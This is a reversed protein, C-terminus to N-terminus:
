DLVANEVIAFRQNDCDIEAQLGHPIVFVPNTHGFDM